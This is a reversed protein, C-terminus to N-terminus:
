EFDFLKDGPFDGAAGSRGCTEYANQMRDFSKEYRDSSSKQIAHAPFEIHITIKGLLYQMGSDSLIMILCDLTILDYYHM